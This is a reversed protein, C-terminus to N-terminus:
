EPARAPAALMGKATYDAPVIRYRYVMAHDGVLYGNTANFFTVARVAAPLSFPRTTFNRGGNFSYGIRGREGAGVIIKGEGVGYYSPWLQQRVSGTWTAGGDTTWYVAEGRSLVVIGENQSWFHVSTVPWKTEPIVSTTWTKGGDTTKAFAAVETGMSIAAGGAQFGVEPSLFQATRMFCDLKRPLGDVTTDASCKGIPKWTKGGDDSRRLTTQTTSDPNEIEFGTQPSVFWVGKSTGSVTSLEQWTNGDRTGLIKGRGTMAWGHRADLFFVWILDDETAEPDGGLQIQWSKGGDTTHLITSKEGVVWCTEPATCAVARLGIDKNFPVPEWIAKFKPEDAKAPAKAAGTRKAPAQGYAPAAMAGGLTLAVLVSFVLPYARLEHMTYM